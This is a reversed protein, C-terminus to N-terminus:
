YRKEYRLSNLNLCGLVILLLLKISEIIIYLIHHHSTAPPMGALVLKAREDLLPLLWFTDALLILTLIVLLKSKINKFPAPFSCILVVALLTIEIKNLAQFVLQGIGLGLSITIGPAQFKLPAELFSIGAILGAWFILCFCAILKKM